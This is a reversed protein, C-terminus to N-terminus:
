CPVLTSNSVYRAPVSLRSESHRRNQTQWLYDVQRPTARDLIEPLFWISNLLERSSAKSAELEANLRSQEEKSVISFLRTKLRCKRENSNASNLFADVSERPLRMALTEAYAFREDLKFGGFEEFAIRSYFRAHSPKITLCVDDVDINCRAYTNVAKFLELVLGSYQRGAELDIALSCIECLRRGTQRLKRIEAEYLDEMPLGARSDMIVALTGMIRGDRKVVFITSEKLLHHPSLFPRLEEGDPQAIYGEQVYARAVLRAAEIREQGTTAIHVEFRSYLSDFSREVDDAVANLRQSQTASTKM